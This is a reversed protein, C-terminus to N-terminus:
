YPSVSVHFALARCDEPNSTCHKGVCELWVAGEDACAYPDCRDISASACSLYREHDCGTANILRQVDVCEDSCSGTYSVEAACARREECLSRCSPGAKFCATTMLTVVILILIRASMTAGHQLTTSPWERISSTMRAYALSTGPTARRAPFSCPPSIKGGESTVRPTIPTVSRVNTRM